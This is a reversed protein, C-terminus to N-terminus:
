LFRFAKDCVEYAEDYKAEILPTVKQIRQKKVIKYSFYSAGWLFFGPIALLIMLWIVPPTATVAFVSGAMFACGTLGCGLSVITPVSDKSAELTSIEQMCSEYHQQLRTLEVKNMIHRSRKMHLTIKGMSKEMPINEDMEWGFKRYSDMYQSGYKEDVTVSVYDFSDAKQETRQKIQDSM